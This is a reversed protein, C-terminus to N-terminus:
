ELEFTADVSIKVTIAGPVFRETALDISPESITVAANSFDHWRPTDSKEKITVVPGLKAGVVDAMETAKQKAVRLADLRTHTRVEHIESTAFTFNVEMDASSVLADLYEDFRKLDRQYITISRSVAFYKFDGRNGHQDREFERRIRVYGTELDGEGIELKERLGVIAKVKQDNKRKAEGLAPDTDTLSIDWVIHDPAVKTEVTGTVSITRLTEEEDALAVGGLIFVLSLTVLLVKRM